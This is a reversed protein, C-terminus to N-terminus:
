GNSASYVGQSLSRIRVCFAFFADFPAGARALGQRCDECIDGMQLKSTIDKRRRCRDFICGRTEEHLLRTPDYNPCLARFGHLLLEYAIFASLPLQTLQHWGATSVVVVQEAAHWHSFWHDRLGMETFVFRPGDGPLSSLAQVLRSEARADLFGDAAGALTIASLHRWQVLEVHQSLSTSHPPDIAEQIAAHLRRSAPVIMLRPKNERSKQPPESLRAKGDLDRSKLTAHGRAFFRKRARADLPQSAEFAENSLEVCLALLEADGDAYTRIKNAVRQLMRASLEHRGRRNLDSAECRARAAYAQAVEREVARNGPQQDSSPPSAWTFQLREALPEIVGDRDRVEFSLACSDGECGSPFDVGLVLSLQQGAIMDGLPITSERLTRRVAYPSISELTVSPLARVLLEVDRAVVDLTETVENEIAKQLDADKEVYYFHGGGADAMRGLLQEAFHQGIGITSTVTGQEREEEVARWIADPCTIGCNALGDTAVIVRGISDESLARGIQECGRLWGGQLDTNGGANVSRVRFIAERKAEATALTAPVVVHVKDAFCVVTFLDHASLRGISNVVAERALRLKEGAMSASRDLVLGLRVPRRVQPETTPATVRVLVHRRGGSLAHLLKRDPEVQFQATRM